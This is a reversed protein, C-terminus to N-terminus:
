RCCCRCCCCGAEVVEVGLGQIREDKVQLLLDREMGQMSGDFGEFMRGVVTVQQQLVLMMLLLLLQQLKLMLPFLLLLLVVMPNLM